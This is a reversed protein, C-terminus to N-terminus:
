GAWCVSTALAKPSNLHRTIIYVLIGLCIAVVFHMRRIAVIKGDWSVALIKAYEAIAPVCYGLRTFVVTLAIAAIIARVGAVSRLSKAAM